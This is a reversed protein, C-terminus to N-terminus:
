REQVVVARITHVNIIWDTLPDGDGIKHWAQHM